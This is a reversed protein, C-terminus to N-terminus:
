RKRQAIFFGSIDSKMQSEVLWPASMVLAGKKGGGCGPGRTMFSFSHKMYKEKLIGKLCLLVVNNSKLSVQSFTKEDKIKNSIEDRM